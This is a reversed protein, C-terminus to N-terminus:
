QKNLFNVIDESGKEVCDKGHLKARADTWIIYTHNINKFKNLHNKLAEAQSVFVNSDEQGHITLIKINNRSYTISTASNLYEMTPTSGFMLNTIRDYDSFCLNKNLTIDHWGSINICSNTIYENDSLGRFTSQVALTAGASSGAMIIRKENLNEYAFKQFKLCDDIQSPWLNKDITLRYNPSYVKYGLPCVLNAFEKAESKDGMMLAGGHIYIITKGNWNTPEYKDYRDSIQEGYSLNEKLSYPACGIMFIILIVLYKM